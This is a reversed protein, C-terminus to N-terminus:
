KAKQRTATVTTVRGQDTQIAVVEESQEVVVFNFHRVEGDSITVTGSGTCDTLMQYTGTFTLGQLIVGDKSKTETGSLNGHGDAVIKGVAARPGPDTGGIRDGELKYGYSGDWSANTCPKPSEAKTDVPLSLGIMAAGVIALGATRKM